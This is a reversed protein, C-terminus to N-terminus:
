SSTSSISYRLWELAEDRDRPQRQLRLTGPSLKWQRLLARPFDIQMANPNGGSEVRVIASLTSEPADPLCRSRLASLNATQAGLPTGFWLLLSLFLLKM